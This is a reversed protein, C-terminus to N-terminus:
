VSLFSQSPPPPPPALPPHFKLKSVTYFYKQPGCMFLPRFCEYNVVPFIYVLATSEVGFIVNQRKKEGRKQLHHHIKIYIEKFDCM